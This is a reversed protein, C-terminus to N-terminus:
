DGVNYFLWGHLKSKQRHSFGTLGSLDATEERQPVCSNGPAAPKLVGADVQLLIQCVIGLEAAIVDARCFYMLQRCHKQDPDLNQPGFM